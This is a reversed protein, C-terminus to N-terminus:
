KARRKRLESASVGGQGWNDADLEEILIVVDEARKNLVKVFLETIGEILEHKAETSTPQERMALKISVVPM